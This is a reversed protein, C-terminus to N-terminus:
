CAHPQAVLELSLEGRADPKVILAADELGRIAGARGTLVRAAEEHHGTQTEREELQQRTVGLLWKM